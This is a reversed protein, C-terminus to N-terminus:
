ESRGQQAAWKAVENAFQEGPDSNSFPSRLRHEVHGVWGTIGIEAAHRALMGVVGEAQEPTDFVFTETEISAGFIHSSRSRSYLGGNPLRIAYQRTFDEATM